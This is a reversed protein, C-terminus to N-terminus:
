RDQVVKLGAGERKSRSVVQNLVKDRPGYAGMQGETMFLLTDVAAIASPRHAIVVVICGRARLSKLAETLAAEGEVDLNSNPEDLVVLFPAGYLARALAIRQRQGGSIVAGGEGLQTEYGEPLRAILDHAKALRAAKIVEDSTWGPRFRAINEAVSGSFLQVDQPMYGIAQGLREPAWQSLDSGDLRVVGRAAPWVGVLARGLTSKGSGSPGIIGLGDGAALSFGVNQVIASTGGPAAVFVGEVALSKRPLPLEVEPLTASFGGLVERLRKLGQRAAVFGRWHSVAQEIPAVARSTIISAAIMIGPTIAEGIALYAGAGLIASQLAFRFTKILSGFLAALDSAKGQLALFLANETLWRARLGTVMGMATVAEANSRAGQALANRAAAQKAAELLPKGVLLENLAILLCLLLAGGTALFGLLPHFLFVVGLYVPMWPMDFFASPGPGSLFHRLQDLDRNPEQQAARRGLRLPLAVASEFTVASLRADLWAGLRILIRSRLAELLGFFAYLGLVIGFLAVLTPVSRSALVRDYVQLMFMPSTLMLVNIVLSVVGVGLFAARCSRLAEPVASAPTTM